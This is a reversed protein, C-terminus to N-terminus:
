RRRAASLGRGHGHTRGTRAGRRQAVADEFGGTEVGLLVDPRLAEADRLRNVRQFVALDVREEPVATQRGGRDEVEDVCRADTRSEDGVSAVSGCSSVLGEARREVVPGDDRLADVLLVGVDRDDADGHQEDDGLRHGLFERVVDRAHEEVLLRLQRCGDAPWPATSSSRWSPIASETGDRRSGSSGRVAPTSSSSVPECDRTM